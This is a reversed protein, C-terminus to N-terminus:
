KEEKNESLIFYTLTLLTLINIYLTIRMSMYISKKRWLKVLGVNEENCLLSADKVKLYNKLKTYVTTM